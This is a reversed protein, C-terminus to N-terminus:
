LGEPSRGFRMPDKVPRAQSHRHDVIKHRSRASRISPDDLFLQDINVNAWKNCADCVSRVVLSAGLAAPIPHEPVESGTLVGQKCYACINALDAEPAGNAIETM